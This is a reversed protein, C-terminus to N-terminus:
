FSKMGRDAMYYINGELCDGADFVLNTIGEKQSKAKYLDILSKLKASGGKKGSHSSGEMFSHTDNTHLIQVLKAEVTTFNFSLTLLLAFRKSNM